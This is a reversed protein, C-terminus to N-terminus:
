ADQLATFIVPALGRLFCFDPLQSIFCSPSTSMLSQSAGAGPKLDERRQPNLVWSPHAAADVATM